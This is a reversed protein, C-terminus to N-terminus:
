TKEKFVLFRLIIFNIPIVFILPFLKALKPDFDLIVLIKILITSIVLWLTSNILYRIGSSLHKQHSKFTWFYNLFYNLLISLSMSLSNSILISELSKYFFIFLVFDLLNTFIGIVCWSFIQSRHIILVLIYNKLIKNM